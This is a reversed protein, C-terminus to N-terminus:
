RSSDFSNRLVFSSNVRPVSCEVFFALIFAIALITGIMFGIVYRAKAEAKIKEWMTM